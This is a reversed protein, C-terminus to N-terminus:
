KWRLFSEFGILIGIKQWESMQREVSSCRLSFSVISIEGM